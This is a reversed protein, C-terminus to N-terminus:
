DAPYGGLANLALLFIGVGKDIETLLRDRYLVIKGVKIVELASM